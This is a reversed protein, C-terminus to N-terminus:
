HQFNQDQFVLNILNFPQLIRDILAHLEDDYNYRVECTRDYIMTPINEPTVPPWTPLDEHEPCGTRAFAILAGSIQKELKDSIGPINCVEVKDTNNFIFPLDSCHWATKGNQFPFDLTFNYIYTPAQKGYAHMKAIKKSPQRLFRDLSLVDTPNKGPYAKSFAEIVEDTYEGYTKAIIERIEENTLEYKNFEPPNFTVEGFVTGIMLPIEYAHERFGVDLPAGYYYDSRQPGGGIYGGEQIVTPSVKIYAKALEDYPLTELQEVNDINLEKLLATVISTGDGHGGALFRGNEDHRMGLLKWLPMTHCEPQIYEAASGSMMLGKHFLGDAAPIQMLDAVKMSGGSQGFVTINDPDGGFATINHHIWKLAAVIDAHGANGSNAYKEGFPSLDLYGLINLRHNLTIVVINGEMCLNFGDYAVQEIASGASYGGGHLWVVVPKRAEPSLSETWINLNQCNENTPWYRHPVLLEGNPTESTLLPCVFGYSTVDKIGEWPTVDEPMQFRKAQAYPIGKFIYEGEWFYGKLKGSTTNVIPVDDYRFNKAM